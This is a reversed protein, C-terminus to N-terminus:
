PVERSPVTQGGAQDDDSTFTSSPGNSISAVVLRCKDDIELTVAAGRGKAVSMDVGDDNAQCYGNVRPLVAVVDGPKLADTGVALARDKTRHIATIRAVDPTGAEAIHSQHWYAGAIAAGVAVVSGFGLLAARRLPKGASSRTRM